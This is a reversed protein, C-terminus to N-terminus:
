RLYDQVVEFGSLARNWIRIEGLSGQFSRASEDRRGDGGHKGFHLTSGTQRVQGAPYPLDSYENGNLYTHLSTGDYVGCVHSWNPSSAVPIASVDPDEGSVQGAHM